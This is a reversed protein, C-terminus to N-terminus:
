RRYLEPNIPARDPPLPIPFYNRLSFETVPEILRQAREAINGFGNGLYWIAAGKVEPYPAYLASAWGIDGLAEGGSPAEEYEWGWETILVTPRRIGMQDTVQYLQQFRGVKFPYDHDIEDRLFSYEHLAIAIREPNAAALRLFELMAPSQWDSVEPEGSSWGFAAWRFGDAMALRATELAFLALWESRGKDVENITELWIQSRDLEPPFSEMHLRWHERAAQEPPLDYNPTDYINGSRRYVLTHPLGSQAALQQAEVLPGADDASKLFFPVGADDLRRMWEGLGTRNGGVGVHFGIKVFGLDQGQAQLQSRVAAFDVTPEPTPSPKPTATPPPAEPISLLPLFLQAVVSFFATPAATVPAADSPAPYVEPLPAATAEVTTAPYGPPAPTSVANTAPYAATPFVATAPFETEAMARTIILPPPLTETPDGAPRQCAALAALLLFLPLLM